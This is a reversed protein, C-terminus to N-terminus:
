VNTYVHYNYICEYIKVSLEFEEIGMLGKVLQKGTMSMNKFVNIFGTKHISQDIFGECWKYYKSLKLGIENTLLKQISIYLPGWRKIYFLSRYFIHKNEIMKQKYFDVGFKIKTDDHINDIKLSVLLSNLQEYANNVEKKASELALMAIKINSIQNPIDTM